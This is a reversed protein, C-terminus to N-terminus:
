KNIQQVEDLSKACEQRQKRFYEPNLFLGAPGLLAFRGATELASVGASAADYRIQPENLTGVIRVDVNHALAKAHKARPVLFLDYTEKGLNITGKGRMLMQKTDLVFLQVTAVGDSVPLGLMGCKIFIGDQEKVWPMVHVFIEGFHLPLQKGGVFGDSMLMMLQGNASAAMASASDGAANLDLKMDIQGRADDSLGARQALQGFNLGHTVTQLTLRPTPTSALGLKGDIAAGEYHLQMPDLKLSGDKLDLEGHVLEIRDQGASLQVASLDVDLELAKMWNLDFRTTPFFTPTSAAKGSNSGAADGGSHDTLLWPTLDLVSQKFAGEIRRPQDPASRSYTFEGTFSSKGAHLEALNVHYKEINGKITFSADSKGLADWIHGGLPFFGALSTASAQVKLDFGKGGVVNDVKGSFSVDLEDAGLRGQLDDLSPQSTSGHVRGGFNFSRSAPWTQSFQKGLISLDDGKVEVRADMQGFNLVDPFHGQVIVLIKDLRAEADVNVLDPASVPGRLRGDVRYEDTDPLGAAKAQSIATLDKGSLRMALDLKPAAGIGDITGSVRLETGDKRTLISDTLSLGLASGPGELRGKSSVTDTHPLGEYGLVAGLDALDRGRLDIALDTQVEPIVKTVAGSVNATLSGETLTAKVNELAPAVLTGTLRADINATDIDPLTVHLRRGVGALGEAKVSVKADVTGGEHLDKVSGDIKTSLGPIQGSMSVTDLSPATLDGSLHGSAAFQGKATFQQDSWPLIQTISDATGKFDIALGKLNPLDSISGSLTLDYGASQLRCQLGKLGLEGSDGDIDGALSFSQLPPMNVHTWGMLVVPQRGTAELHLHIGKYDRFDPDDIQGDISLNTDGVTAKVDIPFPQGQMLESFRGLTGDVSLAQNLVHGKAELRVENREPMPSLSLSDLTIERTMPAAPNLYAAHLDSITLTRIHVPLDAGTHRGTSKFQWNGQGDPGNELFLQAGDIRVYRLEIDGILLRPLNPVLQLESITLMEPKSAWSPNGITVDSITIAPLPTLSVKLPGRLAVDRGLASELGSEARRRIQEADQASLYVYGAAIALGVLALM